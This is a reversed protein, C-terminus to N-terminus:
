PTVKTVAAGIDNKVRTIQSKVAQLKDRAVLYNGAQYDATAATLATAAADLDTQMVKIDLRTGKGKPAKALATKAEVMLADIEVILTSDLLRMNEKEVAAESAAKAALQQAATITAKAQDYDRLMSFRGDQKQIEVSAANLSDMAEKYAAPAYLEAEAQQATELAKKGADFETVPAESCGVILVVVAFVAVGSLLRKCM